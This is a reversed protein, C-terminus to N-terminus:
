ILNCVFQPPREGNLRAAIIGVGIHSAYCVRSRFRLSLSGPGPSVISDRHGKAEAIWRSTVAECIEEM